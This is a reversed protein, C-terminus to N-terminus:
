DEERPWELAALGQYPEPVAAAPREPLPALLRSLAPASILTTVLAMVILAVFIRDDILGADKAVTALIMVMAGRANMAFGVATAQRLPLGSIRAGSIAGLLKGGCAVLLVLGVLVPDFAQLFDARLGISVFYLPAFLSAVFLYILKRGEDSEESASSLAVGALFAGFAADTGVLEALAASLLMAVTALGIFGGAGPVRNKLWLLTAQGLYRGATLMFIFFLVVLFLALFPSLQLLGHPAFSALIFAFLSWGLLDDLTAAGLVVAGLDTKLLNLDLLIRAIVPLASISLATGVFLAVLTLRGQALEGFLGPFLYVLGCGFAFPVLIGLLSTWAIKRGQRTVLGLNLELGVAFLFFLAGVQVLADRGQFAPGAAPFLWGFSGPSLWGWVTPGLLIGGVLEGLVAPLRCKRALHGCALATLLMVAIELAFILLDAPSM